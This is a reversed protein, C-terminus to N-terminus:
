AARIGLTHSVYARSGTGQSTPQYSSAGRYYRGSITSTVGGAGSTTAYSVREVHSAPWFENAADSDNVGISALFLTDGAGWSPSLSAHVRPAGSNFGTTAAEPATAAHFTGADLVYVTAVAMEAASTVFDVTTASEDGAADRYYWGARVATGQATSNIATYGSPTTVTASGDSAFHVLIRDGTSVAPINVLHATDDTSFATVTPAALIEAGSFLPQAIPAVCLTFANGVVSAGVSFQGPTHSLADLVRIASVVAGNSGLTSVDGSYDAPLSTMAVATRLLSGTIWLSSTGSGWSNTLAPPFITSGSFNANLAASVRLGARAVAGSIRHVQAAIHRSEGITITATGGGESGTAVKSFIGVVISQDATTGRQYVVDWGAPPIVATATQQPAVLMLLLDGAQVQAPMAIAHTTAQSSSVTTTVSHRWGDIMPDNAPALVRGGFRRVFAPKM